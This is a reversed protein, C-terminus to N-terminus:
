RMLRRATKAAVGADAAYADAGIEDAFAQTVPAGGIMVKVRDGLGNENVAVITEKMAPMTTTLLASLCLLDADLEDLAEVFRDAPVDVGLDVVDLGTGRCMMGVLNKGIDHLDGKVTGIVATGSRHSPDEAILPKLIEVGYNMAKASRLVEPIFLEGTEMMEGVIKMGAILGKDLIQRPELGQDIATNVLEATRSVDSDRLGDMIDQYEVM